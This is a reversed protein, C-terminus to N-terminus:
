KGHFFDTLTQVFLQPHSLFPAHACGAIEHLQANPLIEALWRSASAPTLTDHEGSLLLTPMVIKAADNRLDSHLLIDLGAKLTEQTPEGRTFLTDRLNKIVARADEGCRAQLSLFRLLTGRYDDTLSQSFETLLKSEIGKDWDPQNIFCPTASVLALRAIQQPRTVAWQQAILSGLSWACVYTHEPAIAAVQKTLEELNYPTCLSSSGYGPLDVAHVRFHQALADCVGGWVGGHMGWGHLLVLDPGQGTTEVHLV